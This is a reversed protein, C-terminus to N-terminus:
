GEMRSLTDRPNAKLTPFVSIGVALFVLLGGLVFLALVHVGKLGANMSAALEGSAFVRNVVTGAFFSTVCVAGFVAALFLVAAETLAQLLISGKSEGLSIFVAFEKERTRMWMALLLSVVIAATVLTLFLLVTTMRIVQQLPAQLREYLTDSATLELNEGATLEELEKQLKELQEPRSTYVSIGSFGTEGFLEKFLAQDTFIQNEVRYASFVQDEQKREMGFFFIGVIQGSAKQGDGTEFGLEDGIQFGYTEALLSNILIGHDTKQDIGTGEIIRYKEEAFLGDAESDDLAKLTVMENEPEESDSGTLPFFDVPYATGEAMRNVASVEELSEIGATLEETIRNQGDASQVQIKSGTKERLRRGSEEATQLIVVSALLMVSTVFLLAFLVLSKGKKRWLYRLGRQEFRM